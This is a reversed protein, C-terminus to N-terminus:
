ASDEPVERLQGAHCTICHLWCNRLRPLCVHWLLLMDQPECQGDRGADVLLVGGDVPHADRGGYRAAELQLHM